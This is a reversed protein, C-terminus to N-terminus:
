LASFVAVMAIGGGLLLSWVMISGELKRVMIQVMKMTHEMREGL